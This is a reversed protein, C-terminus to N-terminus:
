MPRITSLYFYQIHRSKVILIILLLAIEGANGNRESRRFVDGLTGAALNELRFRHVVSGVLRLTFTQEALFDETGGFIVLAIAALVLADAVATDNAVAATHFHRLLLYAAFPHTMDGKGNRHGMDPVELASGVFDAGQETNRGLLQFGNDVILFVDYHVRAQQTRVLYGFLETQVLHVEERLVLVEGCLVTQRFEAAFLRFFAQHPFVLHVQHGLHAGLADIVQELFDVHVLQAALETTLHTRFARLLALCVDELAQAHHLPELLGLIHVTRFPHDHLHNGDSRRVQARQNRQIAAAESGTVQVVEITADDDTVVAQLFEDLDLSRLHNQAVFFTHQLFGHVAQEVVGLLTGGDLALAVTGEFGQGIGELTLLAAETLVEQTLTYVVGGTRNDDHTRFEVHVLATERFEHSCLKVLRKHDTLEDLAADDFGHLAGLLNYVATIGNDPVDQLVHHLAMRHEQVTCRGQVTQTDLGELGAHDLTLGDLQVREGTGSEVCVEVTVLHSDVQRQAIGGDHLCLEQHQARM